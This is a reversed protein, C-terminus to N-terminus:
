VRIHRFKGAEGLIDAVDGVLDLLVPRESGLARVGGSKRCVGIDAITEFMPYVHQVVADSQKALLLPSL